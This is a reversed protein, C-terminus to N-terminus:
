TAATESRSTARENSDNIWCPRLSRDTTRYRALRELKKAQHTSLLDDHPVWHGPRLDGPGRILGGLHPRPGLRLELGGVALPALVVGVQGVHQKHEAPGPHPPALCPRNSPVRTSQWWWGTGASRPVEASWAPSSRRLSGLRPGLGLGSLVVSLGPTRPPLGIPESVSQAPPPGATHSAPFALVRLDPRGAPEEDLPPASPIRVGSRRM